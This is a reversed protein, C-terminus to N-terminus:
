ILRIVRIMFLAGIVTLKKLFTTPTIHVKKDYIYSSM